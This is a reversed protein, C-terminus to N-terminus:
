QAAKEMAAATMQRSLTRLQDAYPSSLPVLPLRLYNGILGLESLAAKIGAPNNEVFLLHYIDLLSDNLRKAKKLEAKLAARVMSSFVRPFANAVVSIVGHMGTAIQAFALADDGSVILFDAPCDRLIRACQVLDGGAEKIGAINPHQSLRIITQAEVNRATRSPVNYILVPIPSADAITTYHQCIGEQSPKSYYPSNSLIAVANETPLAKIEHIVERTHSGGAGIVVPVRGNVKEITFRAIRIKEERSLVPTEGTTGLTVIYDVGGEIVFDILRALAAEDIEMRVNFPTVLAVGTGSLTPILNM